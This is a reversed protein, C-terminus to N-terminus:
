GCPWRRSARLIDALQTGFAFVGGIGILATVRRLDKGHLVQVPGTAAYTEKVHGVHREVAIDACPSALVFDFHSEDRTGALLLTNAALLEGRAQAEPRRLVAALNARLEHTHALEV